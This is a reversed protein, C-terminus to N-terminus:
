SYRVLVQEVGCCAEFYEYCEENNNPSPNGECLYFPVCLGKGEDCTRLSDSEESRTGLLNLRFCRNPVSM